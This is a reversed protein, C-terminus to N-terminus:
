SCQLQLPLRRGIDKILVRLGYYARDSFRVCSAFIRKSDAIECSTHTHKKIINCTSSMVVRVCSLRLDVPFIFCLLSSFIFSHFSFVIFRFFWFPFSVFSFVLFALFSLVHLPLLSLFIHFFTMSASGLFQSFVANPEFAKPVNCAASEVVYRQDKNMCIIKTYQLINQNIRVMWARLACCLSSM